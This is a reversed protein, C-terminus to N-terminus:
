FVNWDYSKKYLLIRFSAIIFIKKCIIGIESLLISACVIWCPNKNLNKSLMDLTNNFESNHVNLSSNIVVNKRKGNM